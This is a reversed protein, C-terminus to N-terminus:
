TSSEEKRRWIWGHGHCVSCVSYISHTQGPAKKEVKEESGAPIADKCKMPCEVKELEKGENDVVM